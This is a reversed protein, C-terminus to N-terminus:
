LGLGLVGIASFVPGFDRVFRRSGSDDVVIVDRPKVLPDIAKGDRIDALDYVTTLRGQPTMRIIAVHHADAVQDPGKALSIAQSLTTDPGIEYMGPQTVEGDVTVKQSAADKMTVSVIPNKMYKQALIAAIDQALQDTTRGSAQVQGILPLVIFGSNDVQVTRNLDPVDFVDVVVTDQPGIPFGASPRTSDSVAAPASPVSAVEQAPAAEAIAAAMAAIILVQSKM